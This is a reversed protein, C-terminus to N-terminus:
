NTIRLGNVYPGITLNAEHADKVPKGNFRLNEIRVNNISHRADRGRLVSRAKPNGYVQIDKFLLDDMTGSSGKAMAVQLLTPCYSNNPVSEYTMEKSKQYVPRPNWDDIEVRLNDFKLNRIATQTRHDLSIVTHTSRIIDLDEFTVDEIASNVSEDYFGSADYFAISKGWDCWVVCQSFRVNRTPRLGWVLEQCGVVLADDFPRVFCKEVLVDQSNYVDIGDANYRWLGVLKLNSVHVKDAGIVNVCWRPPDRLVLGEVSVNRCGFLAICGPGIFPLNSRPVRSGDLVGRGWIRINEAGAASIFGYVVAGGAIYVSDNSQLQLRGVQHVGPGFYHLRASGATPVDEQVPNPFLHLANHYGNVEVVIPMIRDLAFSITHGKVEPTIGLSLPRVVVKEVARKVTVQIKVRGKMDWYAFGALESQEIPRQCGTWYLNFPIASVRCSYVAVSQGDIQVQYGDYVSEGKPIPYNTVDGAWTSSLCLAVTIAVFNTSVTFGKWFTM